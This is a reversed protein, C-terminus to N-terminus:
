HFLAEIEKAYLEAVINRRIKLSMTLERGVEFKRPLLKFRFIREHVKFGGRPNILKQIEEHVQDQIAPNELLEEKEVYSIRKEGAFTEIKEMDPVILAGLFKKDQGVVM